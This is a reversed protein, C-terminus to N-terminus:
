MFYQLRVCRRTIISVWFLLFYVADVCRLCLFRRCFMSCRKVSNLAEESIVNCQSVIFPEMEIKKNEESADHTHPSSTSFWKRTSVRWIKDFWSFSSGTMKPRMATNCLHPRNNCVSCRLRDTPRDCDHTRCFRSFWDLHWKPQPGPHVWPVM